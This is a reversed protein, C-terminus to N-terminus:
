NSKGIDNRWEELTREQKSSNCSRCAMVLNSSSHLGGKALPVVHDVTRKDEPTDKECYTCLTQEYLLKLTTDTVTGDSLASIASRRNFQNIRHLSRWREKNVARYRATNLRSRELDKYVTRSRKDQCQICYAGKGGSGRKSNRFLSMDLFMLCDLCEKTNGVIRSFRKPAIGIRARRNKESLTKCARCQGTPHGKYFQFDSYPKPLKCKTCDKNM